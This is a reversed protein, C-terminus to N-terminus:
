KGDKFVKSELRGDWDRGLSSIDELIEQYILEGLRRSTKPNKQGNM